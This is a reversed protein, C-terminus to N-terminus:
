QEMCEKLKLLSRRLWTRMTNLPVDFQAALDIYSTGTLYAGRLAAAKEVELTDFCQNIRKAEGVAILRNEARPTTDIVANMADEDDAQTERRARLRDIAHNRALAILWTMGRGKDAEYRNARLWVRTFVEQLADEAEARNGLIRLLVGMLKASANSYISRFAARDQAAIKGLLDAIPDDMM